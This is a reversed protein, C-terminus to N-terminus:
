VGGFKRPTWGHASRYDEAQDPTIAKAAQLTMLDRATATGSEYRERAQQAGLDAWFSPRTQEQAAYELAASEMEERTAATARSYDGFAHATMYAHITSM